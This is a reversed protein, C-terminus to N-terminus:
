RVNLRRLLEEPALRERNRFILARPHDYVVFSEDPQLLIPAAGSLPPHPPNLWAPGRIFEGVLEFGLKGALLLDYYRSAVPYRAPLRPISGYLRRSALILVDSESLETALAQWKAADDPESYLALTRYAYETQNFHTGELDVTLPLATDWHEIALTSGAPVNQYIWESATLWSHPEGYISVFVLAYVLSALIVLAIVCTAPRLVLVPARGADSERRKFPVQQQVLDVLLRTALLCLVPILPLMYRLYKAYLAGTIILYPGAWALPLADTWPGRRLWRILSVAIGAWALLGVPLALGWLVTQWIHYFYPLTGAYQITYPVNQVGRAIQAERVTHEIFTRWDILTYPQAMLFVVLAVSVPLVMCKLAAMSIAVPSGPNTERFRTYCAVFVVFVLPIASVKTALALGLAIGLGIQRRSGGARAVGAALTLTLMVAFTLVPDATYFHALQINLVALGVLGAALLAGWRVGGQKRPPPLITRGLRYTLYITGLDSLVALPRGVFHLNDVMRLAPWLPQLLTAVLKLLYIPLSGYAFFNPNLPSSPSLAEALSHPWSLGMVVFYIQREDPHLWQGDDWNLGYLRLVAAVSLILVLPLLESRMSRGLEVSALKQLRHTRRPVDLQTNQAGAQHRQTVADQQRSINSGAGHQAGM